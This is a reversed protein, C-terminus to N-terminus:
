ANHWENSTYYDYLQGLEKVARGPGQLNLVNIQLDAGIGNYFFHYDADMRNKADSLGSKYQWSDPNATVAAANKLSHNNTVAALAKGVTTTQNNAETQDAM